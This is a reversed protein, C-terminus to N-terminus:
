KKQFLLGSRVWHGSPCDQYAIDRSLSAAKEMVDLGRSKMLEIWYEPPQENVHHHGGQGPFAHTMALILGPAGQTITDLFYPLYRQDIHEAVECCWVLRLPINEIPWLYPGERLDHPHVWGESANVALLSGDIGVVKTGEPAHKQFFRTAHGEGAGVDLIGSPGLDALLGVLWGWMNPYFTAPDGGEIFGGLDGDVIM